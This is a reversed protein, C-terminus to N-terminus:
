EGSVSVARFFPPPRCFCRRSKDKQRRGLWSKRGGGGQIEGPGRVRGPASPRGPITAFVWAWRGTSAIHQQPRVPLESHAHGSGVSGLCIGGDSQDRHAVRLPSPALPTGLKGAPSPWCSTYLRRLVTNHVTDRKDREVADPFAPFLVFGRRSALVVWGM